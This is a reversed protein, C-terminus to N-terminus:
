NDPATRYKAPLPRADPHRSLDLTRRSPAAAPRDGPRPLPDPLPVARRAALQIATWTNAQVADVISALLHTRTDWQRHM